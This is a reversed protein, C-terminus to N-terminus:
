TEKVITSIYTAPKGDEMEGYKDGSLTIRKIPLNLLKEPLDSSDFDGDHEGIDFFLMFRRDIEFYFSGDEYELFELQHIDYYKKLTDGVGVVGDIKGKFGNFVTISSVTQSQLDLYIKICNKYIFHVHRSSQRSVFKEWKIHESSNEDNKEEVSKEYLSKLSDVNMGIKLEGIGETPNIPAGIEVNQIQM